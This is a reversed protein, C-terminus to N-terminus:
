RMIFCAHACTRDDERMGVLEWRGGLVSQVCEILPTGCAGIRGKQYADMLHGGETIARVSAEGAKRVENEPLRPSMNSSILFVTSDDSLPEIIKKLEKIGQSKAIRAFIFSVPSSPNNMAIYPLFLERSYEEKEYASADPLGISRIMVPGLPTMEEGDASSFFMAGDDKELCPRHIPLLIIIRKGDSISAFVRRYFHAVPELAMHPLIAARISEEPEAPSVLRMLEDKDDPYFIANHYIM